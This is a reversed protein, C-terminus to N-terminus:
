ELKIIILYVGRMEKILQSLQAIAKETQTVDIKKIFSRVSLDKQLEQMYEAYYFRSNVGRLISHPLDKPSEMKFIVSPRRNVSVM